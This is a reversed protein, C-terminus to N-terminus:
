PSKAGKSSPAPEVDYEVISCCYTDHAENRYLGSRKAKAPLAAKAAEQSAYVGRVYKDGMDYMRDDHELVYITTM